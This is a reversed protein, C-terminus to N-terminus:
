GLYSMNKKDADDTTQTSKQLLDKIKTEFQEAQKLLPASDVKLKLYKDLLGIVSAAAKSDPLQSHTGAFICSTKPYRLMMASSVGVIISEQVPKAGLKVLKANNYSYLHSDAEGSVSGVGEISILEKAKMKKLMDIIADTIKWEYGKTNLITHLIVLNHKQSYFVAMPRVLNTKHIAVTAPLEDYEFEGILKAKLHEILFETSITGVLGFGPFGEIVTPNKPIKKLVVKM